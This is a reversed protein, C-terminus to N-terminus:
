PASPVAARVRARRRRVGIRVGGGAAGLLILALGAWAPWPALGRVGAPVFVRVEGPVPYRPAAPPTAAAPPSAPRPGARPMRHGRPVPDARPAAAPPAPRTAVRPVPPVGPPSTGFFRLPDVYGFREGARRVGLHLGAHEASAGLTGVPRGATVAEGRRVSVSALPLHTVRWPGCRLTVLGPRATAVRGACAARVVAGPRASLDVGRHWGARFPDSGYAFARAVSGPV